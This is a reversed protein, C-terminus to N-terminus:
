SVDIRYTASDAAKQSFMLPIRFAWPGHDVYGHRPRRVEGALLVPLLRPNLGFSSGGLPGGPQKQPAALV